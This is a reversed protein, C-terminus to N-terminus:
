LKPSTLDSADGATSHHDIAMDKMASHAAPTQSLHSPLYEVTLSSFHDGSKEGSATYGDDPFYYATPSRDSSVIYPNATNSTFPSDPGASAITSDSAHRQHGRPKYYSANQPTQAASGVSSQGGRYMQQWEQPVAFTHHFSQHYPENNTLEFDRTDDTWGVHNHAARPGQIYPQYNEPSLIASSNPPHYISYPSQAPPSTDLDSTLSAPGCISPRRRSFNSCKSYTTM